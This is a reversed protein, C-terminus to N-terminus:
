CLLNQVRPTKTVLDTVFYYICDTCSFQFCIVTFTNARCLVYKCGINARPIVVLCGAEWSMSLEMCYTFLESRVLRRMRWMKEM